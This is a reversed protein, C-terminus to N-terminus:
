LRKVTWVVLKGKGTQRVPEEKHGPWEALYPEEGSGAKRLKVEM